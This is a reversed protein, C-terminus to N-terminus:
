RIERTGKIIWGAGSRQFTFVFRAIRGERDGLMGSTVEGEMTDPESGAKLSGSRLLIEVRDSVRRNMLADLDRKPIAPFARSVGAADGSNLARQYTELLSEIAPRAAAVPDAVVPASVRFDVTVTRSLAGATIAVQARHSGAPVGRPSARLTLTAGQISATLWGSAGSLYEPARAAAPAREGALTIAVTEEPPAPGDSVAAFSVATRALELAAAARVALAVSGSMGEAEATIVADGEALLSVQARLSDGATVTAVAPNSSRWVLPASGTGPREREVTAGVEVNRGVTLAGAGAPPALAIRTIRSARVTLDIAGSWRGSTATIRVRGPQRATAVGQGSVEVRAPDGSRWQVVANAVRAGGSDTVVAGLPISEGVDLLRKAASLTVGGV